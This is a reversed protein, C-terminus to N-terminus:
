RGPRGDNRDGALPIGQLPQGAALSPPGPTPRPGAERELRSAEERTRGAHERADDSSRATTEASEDGSGDHLGQTETKLIRASRGLSRALHPLKASGFLLLVVGLIILLETTGLGAM